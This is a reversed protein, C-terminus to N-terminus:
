SSVECMYKGHAHMPHVNNFTFLEGLMGIPFAPPATPVNDQDINGVISQTVIWVFDKGTLGLETAVELIGVAEEQTVYLLIIRTDKSVLEMLQEKTRTKDDGDVVVTDLLTFREFYFIRM